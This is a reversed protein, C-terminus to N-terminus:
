MRIIFELEFNKQTTVNSRLWTYSVVANTKDVINLKGREFSNTINMKNADLITVKESDGIYSRYAFMFCQNTPSFSDVFDINSYSGFKIHKNPLGKILSETVEATGASGYYIPQNFIYRIAESSYLTNTDDKAKVTFSTNSSITQNYTLSGTGGDAGIPFSGYSSTDRWLEVSTIPNSEKVVTATFQVPAIDIGYEYYIDTKSSNLVVIPKVYPHLLEEIIDQLPTNNYETGKPIGGIAATSPNTDSYRILYDLKEPLTANDDFLVSDASTLVDVEEIAAGTQADMINVRVKRRVSFNDNNVTIIFKENGGLIKTDNNNM